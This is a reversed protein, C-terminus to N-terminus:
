HIELNRGVIKHPVKKALALPTMRVLKHEEFSRGMVNLRPAKEFLLTSPKGIKV